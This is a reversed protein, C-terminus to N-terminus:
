DPATTHSRVAFFVAILGYLALAVYPAFIAIITVVAYALPGFASIRGVRRV